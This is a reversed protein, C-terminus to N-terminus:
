FLLTHENIKIEISGECTDCYQFLEDISFLEGSEIKTIIEINIEPEIQKEKRLRKLTKGLQERRKKYNM